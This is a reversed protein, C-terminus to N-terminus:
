LKLTRRPKPKREVKKIPKPEKNPVFAKKLHEEFRTIIKATRPKKSSLIYIKEDFYMNRVTGYVGLMNTYHNIRIQSMRLEHKIDKIKGTLENKHTSTLFQSELIELQKELRIEEKKFVGRTEKWGKIEHVLSENFKLEYGQKIFPTSAFILAEFVPETWPREYRSTSEGLKVGQVLGIKINKNEVFYNVVGIPENKYYTVLMVESPRHVHYTDGVPFKWDTLAKISVDKPHPTSIIINRINRAVNVKNM